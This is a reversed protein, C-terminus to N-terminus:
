GINAGHLELSSIGKPLARVGLGCPRVDWPVDLCAHTHTGRDNQGM